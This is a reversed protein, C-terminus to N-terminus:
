VGSQSAAFITASTSSSGSLAVTRSGAHPDPVKRNWVTRRNSAAARTAPHLAIRLKEIERQLQQQRSGVVQVLHKATDIEM